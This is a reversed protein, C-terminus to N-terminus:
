FILNQFFISAINSKTITKKTMGNKEQIYCIIPFLKDIDDM